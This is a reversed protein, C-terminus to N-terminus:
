LVLEFEIEHLLPIDDEGLRPITPKLRRLYDLENFRFASISFGRRQYFRFAHANDNTTQLYIRRCKENRAKELVAKILTSGVGINQKVAEIAMIECENGALRYYCYGLLEKKDSHAIFCPMERLDYLERHVAVEMGGWSGVVIREVEDTYDESLPVINLNM